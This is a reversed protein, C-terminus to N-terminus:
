TIDANDVLGEAKKMGRAPAPCAVGEVLALALATPSALLAQLAYAVSYAVAEGHTVFGERRARLDEAEELWAKSADVYDQYGPGAPEPETTSTDPDM